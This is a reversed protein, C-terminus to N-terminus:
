QKGKLLNFLDDVKKELAVLRQGLLTSEAAKVQHDHLSQSRAQEIEEKRTLGASPNWTAQTIQQGTPRITQKADINLTFNEPNNNHAM